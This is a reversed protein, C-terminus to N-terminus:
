EEKPKEALEKTLRETIEKTLEERLEKKYEEKWAEDLVEVAKLENDISTKIAEATTWMLYPSWNFIDLLVGKYWEEDDDTDKNTWGKTPLVLHNTKLGARVLDSKPSLFLIFDHEAQESHEEVLEVLEYARNQAKRIRNDAQHTM